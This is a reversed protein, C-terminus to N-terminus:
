GVVEETRKVLRYELDVSQGRRITEDKAEKESHFVSCDRWLQVERLPRFQIVFM